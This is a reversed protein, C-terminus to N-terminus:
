IPRKFIWRAKNDDDDRIVVVLEWGAKGLENLQGPALIEVSLYEWKQM